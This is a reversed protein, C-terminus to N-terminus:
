FASSRDFMSGFTRFVINIDLWLSWHHMYWLDHELRNEMSSVTPTAGRHGNVQAWGTIGPKIQRRFAYRSILRDYHDEQSVAHPRPGVVSMHGMLVNWFQPLEDVSTSRIFKGVRTVRADNQVAQTMESESEMVSMSRFKVIDFPQHNFGRRSQHFFVPGRTDLKIAIAVMLMLPAFFLLAIAAVVIDFCRKLSREAVNLPARQLVVVTTDGITSVPLMAIQSVFSDLVLHVPVPLSRLQKIVDQLVDPSMGQTMVYVETVDRGISRGVSASLENPRTDEELDFVHAAHLGMKALETEYTNQQGITSRVLIVKKKQVTGRTTAARIYHAWSLRSAIVGVTSTAAFLAIAGRSLGDSAGLLFIVLALFTALVFSCATIYVLQNAFFVLVSSKYYGKVVMLLVFGAAFVMGIAFYKAPQEIYGFVVYHYALGSALAAAIVILSDVLAVMYSIATPQVVARGRRASAGILIAHANAM